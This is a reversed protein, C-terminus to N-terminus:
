RHMHQFLLLAFFLTFGICSVIMSCLLFSYNGTSYIILGVVIQLVMEGTGAFTVLVTTVCGQYDLIDETYALMCPFISSLFLGLLFTGVFLFVSDKYLILLLLTTIIMGALNAILIHVPRVKCSLPVSVLRGVTIAAWFVSALNGATRHPLSMPPDVAYSYVFVSYVGTIGDTMFLVLGGLIHIGITFTSLTRLVGNRCCSFLGGHDETHPNEPEGKGQGWTKMALGEQELLRPSRTGCCSPTREYQMLAFVVIPVPLNIVAMIWFAYSVQTVVIGETLLHYRSWNHGSTRGLTNRLHRLESTGNEAGVVCNTESLFPDAILPSVLAGLGIFFHLVQLFVASDKQYIKVLQVNAITDIIGMAQGSVALAVALLFVSHCLPVIAFVVSILLTSTFLALLACTQTKKFLGGVSSGILMFFQQSFFVCTIEQLTSQTQCRLDLITPGLFSISLGFSFFVSWYTLTHQWNQMFITWIRKNLTMM